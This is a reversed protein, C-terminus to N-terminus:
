TSQATIRCSTSPMAFFEPPANAPIRAANTSTLALGTSTSILNLLSGADASVRLMKCATSTPFPATSASSLSYAALPANPTLPMKGRNLEGAYETVWIAM